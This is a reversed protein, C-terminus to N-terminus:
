RSGPLSCAIEDIKAKLMKNGDGIAVQWKAGETHRAMGAVPGVPAFASVGGRLGLGRMCIGIHPATMKIM